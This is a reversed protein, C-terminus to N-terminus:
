EHCNRRRKVTLANKMLAQAPNQLWNNGAMACVEM